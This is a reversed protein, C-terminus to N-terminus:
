GAEGPPSWWDFRGHDAAAFPAVSVVASVAIPGYVHPFSEGTGSTDEWVLEATLKGQDIELLVLDHRGAFVRNATGVLQTEDSCHVFGEAEWGVPAYFAGRASWDAETAIHLIM